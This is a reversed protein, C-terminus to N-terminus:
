GGAASAPEAMGGPHEDGRAGDGCPFVVQRWAGLARGASGDDQGHQRISVGLVHGGAVAGHDPRAIRAAAAAARHRCGRPGPVVARCPAAVGVLAPVSAGCGFGIGRSGGAFRRSPRAPNRRHAARLFTSSRLRCGGRHRDVAMAGAQNAERGFPSESPRTPRGAGGVLEIPEFMEVFPPPIEFSVGPSVLLLSGAERLADRAAARFRRNAWRDRWWSGARFASELQQLASASLGPSSFHKHRDVQVVATAHRNMGACRVAFAGPDTSM